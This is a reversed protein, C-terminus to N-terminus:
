ASLWQRKLSYINESCHRGVLCTGRSPMGVSSPIQKVGPNEHSLWLYYAWILWCSPHFHVHNWLLACQLPTSLPTLPSHHHLHHWASAQGWRHMPLTSTFLSFQANIVLPPSRQIYLLSAKLAGFASCCTQRGTNLRTTRDWCFCM